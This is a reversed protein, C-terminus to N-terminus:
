IESEDNASRDTAAGIKEVSMQIYASLELNIQTACNLCVNTGCIQLPEGTLEKHCISCTKYEENLTLVIQNDVLEMDLSSGQQIELAKRYGEPLVIRGLTDVKRTIM